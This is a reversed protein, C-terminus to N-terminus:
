VTVDREGSPGCSRVVAPVRLSDSEEYLERLAKWDSDPGATLAAVADLLAASADPVTTGPGSFERAMGWYEWGLMERKNLAALDRVVNASVFWAGTLGFAQVGCKGPDLVGRRLRRWTEGAVLFGDRPVDSSPFTISFHRRVPESLEPDLLRWRGGAEYECVWHDDNFGPGFYTAFGVRARAPVGRHRLAACALMAYERCIGIYRREPPRRVDLPADDRAVIRELMGAITRNDRDDASAPHPTIGLSAVFLPHLVLGSVAAVLAEPDSPMADLLRARPGPDSMASHTAYYAREDPTM